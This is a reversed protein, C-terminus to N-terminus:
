SGGPLLDLLAIMFDKIVDPHKDLNKEIAPLVTKHLWGPFNPEKRPVEGVATVIEDLANQYWPVDANFMKRLKNDGAIAVGHKDMDQILARAYDDRLQAEIRTWTIGKLGGEGAKDYVRLRQDSKRSGFEITRGGQITEKKINMDLRMRTKIKGRKYASRISEPSHDKATGGIVDISYDARPTNKGTMALAVLKENSFGAERLARLPDGTLLVIIGQRKDNSYAYTGGCKLRYGVDYNKGAPVHDGPEFGDHLPLVSEPFERGEWTMTLWDINKHTELM